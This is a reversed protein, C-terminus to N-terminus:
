NSNSGAFLEAIIPAIRLYRGGQYTVSRLQRGTSPDVLQVTASQLAGVEFAGSGTVIVRYDIDPTSFVSRTTVLDGPTTSAAVGTGSPGRQSPYSVLSDRYVEVGIRVLETAVLGYMRAQSPDNEILMVSIRGEKSEPPPGSTRLGPACAGLFVVFVALTLSLYSDRM